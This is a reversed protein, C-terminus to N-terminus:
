WDSSAGGGGSMGGGFGGFGGGDFGGFGGGSRPGRGSNLLQGLLIGTAVDGWRVGHVTHRRLNRRGSGLAGLALLAVMTALVAAAPFEGRQTYRRRADRGIDELRVGQAQAIREGLSATALTLAGVFDGARLAPRMQRLIAGAAGDPLVPELGYGVELRSKRDRIALLFLAGNDKGKQGIKWREFLLSAVDEVPEGDLSPLTVIALQAGTAAELRACYGELRQRAAPDLVRAFDSVYGEPQLANFDAAQVVAGLWVLPALRRWVRGNLM